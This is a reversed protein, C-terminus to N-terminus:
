GNGGHQQKNQRRILFFPEVIFFVLVLAIITADMVSCLGSFPKKYAIEKEKAATDYNNIHRVMSQDNLEYEVEGEAIEMAKLRASGAEKEKKAMLSGIITFAIRLILLVCIIITIKILIEPSTYSM